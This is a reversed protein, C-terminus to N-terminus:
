ENTSHSKRDRRQLICLAGRGAAGLSSRFVKPKVSELQDTMGHLSEAHGLFLYGNPALYRGLRDIVKLKTEWEFYIIVNRCFILDFPGFIDYQQEILNLRQFRVVKRLEDTAKIKGTDPGFGKLLFQRQYEVPVGSLKSSPWIGKSARALVKTSLDTGLVEAKWGTEAPFAALLMMALSYPEEGTSCAASWARVTRQRPDSDAAASWEPFVHQRLCDFSAPERFFHTENTCICDLMRVMETPNTRVLRYYASFSNLELARLRRWLRSVLMARNKPGLHIGSEREVLGQFLQFEEDTLEPIPAPLEFVPATTNPCSSM